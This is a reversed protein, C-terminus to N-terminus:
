RILTDHEESYCLARIGSEHGHLEAKNKMTDMDWLIIKRDLGASLLMDYKKIYLITLIKGTHGILRDQLQIENLNWILIHDDGGGATFLLEYPGGVWEAVHQPERSVLKFSLKMTELDWISIINDSSLVVLKKQQPIYKIFLLAAHSGGTAAPPPIDMSDKRMIRTLNVDLIDKLKLNPDYVKM